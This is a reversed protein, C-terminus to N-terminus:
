YYHRRHYHRRYYPRRYHRYRRYHHRRRYYPRYGYHRRRYHRRRYYPRYGYHRRRYHYAKKVTDLKAAGQLQTLSSAAPTASAPIVFWGLIVLGALALYLPRFSM